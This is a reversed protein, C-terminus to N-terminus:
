PASTTDFVETGGARNTNGYQDRAWVVFYYTTNATLGTITTSTADTITTRPSTFDYNGSATALFVEYYIPSDGSAGDWNLLISSSSQAQADIAGTFSSPPTVDTNSGTTFYYYDGAFRTGNAATITSYLTIQHLTSVNLPTAPEMRVENLYPHWTVSAPIDLPGDIIIKFNNNNVTAPDLPLNFRIYIVPQRPINTTMDGPSIFTITLPTNEDSSDGSCAPVLAAAAALAMLRLGWCSKM